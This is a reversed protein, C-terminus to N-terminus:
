EGTNAEKHRFNEILVLHLWAQLWWTCLAKSYTLWPIKCFFVCVCVDTKEIELLVASNNM